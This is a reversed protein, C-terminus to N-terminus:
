WLPYSEDELLWSDDCLLIIIRVTVVSTNSPFIILGTSLYKKNNSAQSIELQIRLLVYNIQSLHTLRQNKM